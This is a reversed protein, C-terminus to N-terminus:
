IKLLCQYYAEAYGRRAPTDLYFWHNYANPKSSFRGLSLWSTTKCANEVAAWTKQLYPREFLATVYDSAKEVSTISPLATYCKAALADRYTHGKCEELIFHAQVNIDTANKGQSAAYSLLHKSRENLWQCIGVSTQDGHLATSFKSEAQINGMFAAISTKSMGDAKLLEYVVQQNADFRKTSGNFNVHYHGPTPSPSPSPSPSPAPTSGSHDLKQLTSKGVKGDVTLGNARQFNRVGTDTGAGFKGDPKGTNYGAANLKTQMTKVGSAYRSRDDKMYYIGKGGNLVQQYTWRSNDWDAM